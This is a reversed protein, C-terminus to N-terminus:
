KKLLLNDNFIFLFTIIVVVLQPSLDVPNMDLINNNAPPPRQGSYRNRLSAFPDSQKKKEIGDVVAIVAYM